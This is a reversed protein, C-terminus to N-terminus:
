YDIESLFETFCKRWQKNDLSQELINSKNLLFTESPFNYLTLKLNLKKRLHPIRSCSTILHDCIDSHKQRCLQCVDLYSCPHLLAKVFRKRGDPSAFGSDRCFPEVIHYTEQYTFINVLFINAFSCKRTRGVELDKRLNHSTIIKKISHLPNLNGAALGHWIQITNYKTCINFADKALSRTFALLNTKRYKLVQHTLTDTPSHLLKWYYRLKMIETRCAIPEVGCFLRVISPSTPKPSNVLSKLLQTQTHELKKAFNSLTQPNYPRSYSAYSLTQACFELIPRVLLKYLKITAEIRFGDMSLGYNRISAAVAKAKETILNFHEKFLNTVYRSTITIGLYNHTQVKELVASGLTFSVHAPAGNFSMVKCKSTNFAMSNRQAWEYCMDLLLQLKTPDDSILVVDDAFGLAAILISGITAGLNSHNLEELLDNIFLNFLVPGLKSGQLVGRNILFEPSLFGDVLINAPNCSFLNQIVRFMKGRVGAKCLKKFLIDRSVTDFAKKLDLFCFYLPAKAAGGRPGKKYFRYELFIEHLVFIHDFISKNKRYAAQHPSIIKNDELFISLRRCIIGEYIKMLSNLLSIPRYNAPDTPDKNEGKLFPSLLTRKFDRPVSENFWFNDFINFIFKLSDLKPSDYNIDGRSVNPILSTIDENTVGDYGPSKGKKLSYIEDLFESYTLDSDLAVVEDSTPFVTTISECFYLNKYYETWNELTENFNKSLAGFSDIIPGAKKRVNHRKRLENFFTKTRKGFDLTDMKGLWDAFKNKREHEYQINLLKELNDVAFLSFDTRDRQMTSIAESFRQQLDLTAPSVRYTSHSNRRKTLISHKARTFTRKLFFYDPSNVHEPASLRYSVAQALKNLEDDTIQRFKTRKKATIVAAKTPPCIKITTTLARHCTQSSVGFPRPSIEFNHVTEPSNTLSLDIISRKKNVIEYTPVGKRYKSNLIVLGSYQLFQLFLAKNPNTTLSGHLNKDELLKGLRANTDGVLYVKGLAAFKSYTSTFIEYFKKRVPLPHHSGPSYFFCFFLPEFLTSLRMWVIDYSKSFYVRTLLFRYKHLYFIALGRRYNESLNIKSKHLYCVYGKISLNVPSPTVSEGYIFIDPNSAILARLEPNTKLRARIRGGGNWWTFRFFTTETTTSPKESNVIPKLRIETLNNGNKLKTPNTWM